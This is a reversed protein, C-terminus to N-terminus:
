PVSRHDPANEELDARGTVNWVRGFLVLAVATGCVAVVIGTLVMAHPVPDPVADAGRYAMSVLILFIGAGSINLGLIKKILHPRAVLAHFGVVFLAGGALAYLTGTEPIM